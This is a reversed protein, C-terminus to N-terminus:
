KRLAAIEAVVGSLARGEAVVGSSSRVSRQHAQGKFAQTRRARREQQSVAKHATVRCYRSHFLGGQKRIKKISIRM